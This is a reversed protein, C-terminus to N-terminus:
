PLAAAIKDLEAVASAARQGAAQDVRAALARADDLQKAIVTLRAQADAVGSDAAALAAKDAQARASEFHSAAAGFNLKYIDVSGALAERRADAMVLRQEVAKLRAEAASRGRAGWLYGTALIVLAVALGIGIMKLWKM